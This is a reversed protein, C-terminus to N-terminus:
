KGTEEGNYKIAQTITGSLQKQRRSSNKLNIVDCNMRKLM